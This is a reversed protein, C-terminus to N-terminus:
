RTLLRVFAYSITSFGFIVFLWDMVRTFDPIYVMSQDHLWIFGGLIFFTIALRWSYTKSGLLVLGICILLLPLWTNFIGWTHIPTTMIMGVGLVVIGFGLLFLYRFHVTHVLPTQIPANTSM